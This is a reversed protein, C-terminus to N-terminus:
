QKYKYEFTKMISGDQDKILELRGFSDYGYYQIKGSADCQASMGILPEYTYTTMQADTPYLRLEDFSGTGSLTVSSVGTVQHEYYTWGNVSRGKVPYGSKTGAISLASTNKTWYSVVYSKATALSSRTINGTSLSYAKTGTPATADAVPTGSFVWSGKGDAEFSTYAIDTYSANKVEAVVYRDFYGWLYASRIGDKAIFELPNGNDSYSIIENRLVYQSSSPGIELEYSKAPMIIQNAGFKAFDVKSGSVTIAGPSVKRSAEIVPSIINKSVMDAIIPPTGGSPNIEPYKFGESVYKGDSTQITKVTLQARDNYSYGEDIILQNGSQIYETIIKRSLLNNGLHSLKGFFAGSVPYPGMHFEDSSWAQYREPLYTNGFEYDLYGIPSSLYSNEEKRLLKFKQTNADFIYEAKEKLRNYYHPKAEYSLTNGYYKNPEFFEEGPYDGALDYTYVTKGKPFVKNMGNEDIEGEYVTVEPYVVHPRGSALKRFNKASLTFTYGWAAYRFEDEVFPVSFPQRQGNIDLGLIMNKPSILEKPPTIHYVPFKDYAFSLYTLINPEAIAIGWGPHVLDNDPASGYFYDKTKGYRYNKKGTVVGDSSYNTITRIRFSSAYKLRYNQPDQDFYGDDHFSSMYAHNQFEFETYGGTPYRLKYLIGPQGSPAKTDVGSNAPHSIKWRYFPSPNYPNPIQTLGENNASSIFAADYGAHIEYNPLDTSGANLYGWHDIGTMWGKQFNVCEYKLGQDAPNSGKIIVNNLYAVPYRYCLNLGDGLVTTGFSIEKILSNNELVQLKDVQYTQVTNPNKYLLLIQNKGGTGYSISTLLRMKFGGTAVEIDKNVDYVDYFEKRGWGDDMFKRYHKVTLFKEECGVLAPSIENEYSLVIPETSFPLDIRTLLWSVYSNNYSAYADYRPTDAGDFTYKVGNEDIITFWKIQDMQVFYSIQVQRGNSIRISINNDAGKDIIFDFSSGDPLVASFKDHAYNYGSLCGTGCQHFSYPAQVDGPMQLKFDKWEDPVYEISRSVCSSLSLAWGLGFVDYNYGPRMPTAVYRLALPIKYGRHNIEYLPISIDPIGTSPNVAYDGYMKFAEAQPSTPISPILSQISQGSVLSISAVVSLLTTFIKKLKM